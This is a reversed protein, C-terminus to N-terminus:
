CGLVPLLATVVNPDFQTGSHDRLEVAADAPDMAERYPRASVMATYADCAFTIRSALPIQEGTLGDPYGKGDYREHEARVSRALPAISEISSVIRAGIIPHNHMLKWESEDLPGHKGLISDPIGIKGIDHLLAVQKVEEM